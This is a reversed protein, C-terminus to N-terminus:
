EDPEFRCVVFGVDDQLKGSRLRILELLESAALNLDAQRATECIKWSPAYKFLGDTGVVLTGGSHARRFPVIKSAGSGLFPKRSQDSTLSVFDDITTLWAESDGISAGCIWRDSLALVVATTQGWIEAQFITQDIENLYDTWTSEKQPDLGRDLWASLREVVAEAAHESGSIGGAGDAVAVILIDDVTIVKVRDQLLDGEPELVIVHSSRPM